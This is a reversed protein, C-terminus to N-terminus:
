MGKKALNLGPLDNGYALSCARSLVKDTIAAAQPGIQYLKTESTAAKTIGWMVGVAAGVAPFTYRTREERRQREREVSFLKTDRKEGCIRWSCHYYGIWFQIWM